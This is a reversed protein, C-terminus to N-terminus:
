NFLSRALATSIKVQAGNYSKKKSFSTREGTM